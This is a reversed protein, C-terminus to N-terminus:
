NEADARRLTEDKKVRKILLIHVDLKRPELKSSGIRSDGHEVIKLDKCM